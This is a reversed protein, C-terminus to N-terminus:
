WRRGGHRTTRQARDALARNVVQSLSAEADQLQWEAQIHM